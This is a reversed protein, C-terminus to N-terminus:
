PLLKSADVAIPGAPLSAPPTVTVPPVSEVVADVVPPTAVPVESVPVSAVAEVVTEKVVETVPALPPLAQAVTVEVKEVTTAVTTQEPATAATVPAPASRAVGGRAEESGSAPLPVAPAAPPPAATERAPTGRAPPRRQAAVAATPPQRDRPAPEHSAHARAFVAGVPAEATTARADALPASPASAVPAAAAEQPGREMSGAAIGAGTVAVVAAAAALKSAAAAGGLSAKAWSLLSGAHGLAALRRRTGAPEERLLAALTERGRFILTEANALSVGLQAAVEEYRLGRWDRLLVARRQQEPLRALADELGILEERRGRPAESRELDVPDCVLELRGRRGASELRDLCVNRAIGLLWAVEVAPQVGRRLGRVAHLFTTQVADEADERRGLRSRCYALVRSAHRQYLEGARTDELAELPELGTARCVANVAAM